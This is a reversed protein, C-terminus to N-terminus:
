EITVDEFDEGHTKVFNDFKEKQLVKNHSINPREGKIGMLMVPIVDGVNYKLQCVITIVSVSLQAEIKQGVDVLVRDNS